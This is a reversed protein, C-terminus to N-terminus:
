YKDGLAYIRAYPINKKIYEIIGNGVLGLEDIIFNTAPLKFSAM